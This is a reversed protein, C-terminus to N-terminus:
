QPTISSLDSNVDFVHLPTTGDTDYITVTNGVKNWVRKNFHAEHVPRVLDLTNAQDVTLGSGTSIITQGASNNSGVSVQNRNVVDLINNNTGGTLNVAYQGDEFTITYGNVILFARAYVVGSVTYSSKHEHTRPFPMGEPDDELGRLTLRLADTDLSYLTGGILTLDAQQINIIKNPWDVTIM